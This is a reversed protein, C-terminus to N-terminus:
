GDQEETVDIEVRPKDKDKFKFLHLQGIQSDDNYLVGTMADLIAKACNDIDGRKTEFYFSIIIVVENKEVKNFGSKMMAQKAMWGVIKKYQKGKTSTARYGQPTTFYLHNVSVPRGEVIFQVTNQLTTKESSLADMGVSTAGTTITRSRPETAISDPEVANM